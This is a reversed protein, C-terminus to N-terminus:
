GAEGRRLVGQRHQVLGRPALGPPRHDRRDPRGHEERLRERAALSLQIHLEKLQREDVPSPAGLLLEEAQQNLPFATM